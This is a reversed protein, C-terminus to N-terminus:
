RVVAFSFRGLVCCTFQLRRSADRCGRAVSDPIDSHRFSGPCSDRSGSGSRRSRSFSFGGAGSQRASSRAGVFERRPGIDDPCPLECRSDGSERARSGAGRRCSGDHSDARPSSGVLRVRLRACAADALRERTPHSNREDIAELREDLLM